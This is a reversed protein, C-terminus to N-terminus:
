KLSSPTQDHIHNIFWAHAALDRDIVFECNVVQESNQFWRGFACDSECPVKLILSPPGPHSKLAFECVLDDAQGLTMLSRYAPGPGMSGIFPSFPVM